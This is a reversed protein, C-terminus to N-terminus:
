LTEKITKKSNKFIEGKYEDYEDHKLVMINIEKDTICIKLVEDERPLIITQQKVKNANLLQYM